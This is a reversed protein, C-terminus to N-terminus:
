KAPVEWLPCPRGESTLYLTKGDAGYTISEGKARDPMKLVRPARKFAEPWTDDPRRVFERADGYTNLVARLGDPSIDLGNGAQIELDTIFRAILLKKEQKEPLPLQYVRCEKRASNRTALYIKKSVVDVAVSEGDQSGDEFRFPIVMAPRVRGVLRKGPQLLPEEVLYLVYLKRRKANDGADAVLLYHKDDLTFSAIDEWDTHHARDIVLLARDRGKTDFAFLRPKGGSDNHTWFVGPNRRGAAVGSSECIRRNAAECVKRAPGYDIRDAAAACGAAALVLLSTSLARNM